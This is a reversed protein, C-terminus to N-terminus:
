SGFIEDLEKNTLKCNIWEADLHVPMKKYFNIAQENWDLVQWEMRRVGQKQAVKGVEYFLLKGIGFGRKSETVIIDELFLCRGKWTSYKYYYLALGITKDDEIAVFFEFISKSGFGHHQMEALTVSVENPAKEYDALEKILELIAPLDDIEGKRITIKNEM